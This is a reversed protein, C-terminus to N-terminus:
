NVNHCTFCNTGTTNGAKVGTKVVLNKITSKRLTLRKETKKMADSGEAAGSAERSARHSQTGRDGATQGQRPRRVSAVGGVEVLEEPAAAACAAKCAVGVNQPLEGARAAQRCRQM